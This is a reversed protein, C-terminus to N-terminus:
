SRRPPHPYSRYPTRPAQSLWASAEPIRRLSRLLDFTLWRSVSPAASVEWLGAPGQLGRVFRVLARVREDELSAGVRACLDLLLAADFAAHFTIFGQPRTAGALRAVEFGLTSRDRTERSLLHDLALRAHESSRRAPHHAFCLLVGTTNSRCGWRSRPLRRYGGVRGFVGQARGTPWTGDELRMADLWGYAAEARPDEAYGCAAVGRHPIAAQLPIADYGAGGEGRRGEGVRPLPWSGDARQLAFLSEARRSVAPHSRDFGLYGLRALEFGAQVPRRPGESGGLLAAAGGDQERLELLERVEPDGRPRDLLDSLVLLRLCPSPDALLLGITLSPLSPTSV